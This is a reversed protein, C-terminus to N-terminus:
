GQKKPKVRGGRKYNYGLSWGMPDKQPGAYTGKYGANVQPGFVQNIVDLAAKDNAMKQVMDPTLTKGAAEVGAQYTPNLTGVLQNFYDSVNKGFAQRYQQNAANAQTAQKGLLQSYLANNAQPGFTPTPGQERMAAPAHWQNLADAAAGYQLGAQDAAQIAQDVRDQYASTEDSAQIANAVQAPTMQGSSLMNSWFKEGEVDPQRGLYKSYLSTLMQDNAINPNTSTATPAVPIAKQAEQQAQIQQKMFAAQQDAIQKQAAQVDPRAQWNAMWDGGMMM